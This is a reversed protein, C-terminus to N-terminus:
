ILIYRHAHASQKAAALVEEVSFRALCVFWRRRDESVLLPLQDPALANVKAAADVQVPQPRVLQLHLDPLMLWTILSDLQREPALEREAHVFDHKSPHELRAAAASAPVQAHMDAEWESRLMKGIKRLREARATFRKLLRQMAAECIQSRTDDADNGLSRVTHDSFPGGGDVDATGTEAHGNRRRMGLLAHFSEGAHHGDSAIKAVREKVDISKALASMLDGDEPFLDRLLPIEALRESSVPIPGPISSVVNAYYDEANQIAGSLKDECGRVTAIGGGVARIVRAVSPEQASSAGEPRSLASTLKDLFSM